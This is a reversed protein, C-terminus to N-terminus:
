LVQWPIEGPTVFDGGVIRRRPEPEEDGPALTPYSMGGSLADEDDNTDLFSAITTAPASPPPASASVNDPM